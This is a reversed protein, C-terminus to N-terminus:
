KPTNLDKISFIWNINIQGNKYEQIKNKISNSHDAGIFFIATNYPNEKSYNYINKIMEYERNNIFRIWDQYINKFVENDTNSYLLEEQTKIMETLEEFQISNLGEFGYQGAMKVMIFLLQQYEKNNEHLFKEMYSKKERNMEPTDYTDVPLHEIKNNQLYLTITDTEVSFPLREKYAEYFRPYDLEEFIVDPRIDEIISYLERVNCRGCEKHMSRIVNVDYMFVM